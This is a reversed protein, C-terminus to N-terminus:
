EYTTHFAWVDSPRPTPDPSIRPRFVNPTIRADLRVDKVVVKGPGLGGGTRAREFAFKIGSVDRYDKYTESVGGPFENKQLLFSKTSYYGVNRDGKDITQEVVYCEEDNVREIRSISVSKFLKKWDLEPFFAAQAAANALAKGRKWESASFSVETSGVKGNFCDRITGIRKGAAMLTVDDAHAGPIEWQEVGKGTVGQTEWAVDYRMVISRHKRLNAEGGRAEVAKRMLEEVTIPSKYTSTDRLAVVNGQPQEVLLESQDPKDKVPRFTAFFGDPAPSALKYRRGGLPTLPYPPQQPVTLVLKGDKLAVDFSVPAGAINYKGVEKAPDTAPGSAVARVPAKPTGGVLNEWVTTMAFSGLPSASVNTLLVFGLKQGPLYAVQANFGDINGGHEVVKHGNWERLMWGYGYGFKPAIQMKQETLEAFSKESLLRKGEIEGGNLMLRVWQAMEEANSNIAGAPAIFRIQRAPLAQYDKKEADWVYGQAFDPQRQMDLIDTNTTKMGLPKFIREALFQRWPKNQVAAVVEGAALFMVNQYQWKEGLKATPKAEAAVQLIERPTLRGTYWAIDTRELGSRHSLLDSITIKRDIDPDNIKFYPLYKKPADTLSLKGEDACMMVTMATFAKSSSGIAFQTKPTVPLNREVNRMGLGKVYVVKDDKVIALSIGPVHLEERKADIAKEIAALKASLDSQALCDKPFALILLLAYVFSHRIRM